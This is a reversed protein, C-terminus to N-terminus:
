SISQAAVRTRCSGHTRSTNMDNVCKTLPPLARGQHSKVACRFRRYPPASEPRRGEGGGM